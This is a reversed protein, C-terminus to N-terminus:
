GKKEAWKPLDNAAIVIAEQVESDWLPGEAKATVRGLTSAATKWSVGLSGAATAILAAVTTPGTSSYKIVAWSIAGVALLFLAIMWKWNWAFSAVLGLFRKTVRDGADKYDGASLLDSARKEGCLLRRWLEGQSHLRRIVQGRAETSIIGKNDEVWIEWQRLSGSVADASQAPLLRHLDDLWDYANVLRFHEFQETFTGPQKADVLLVTDALMRGLDFSTALHMDKATLVRRLEEHIDLLAKRTSEPEIGEDALGTLSERLQLTFGLAQELQSVDHEIASILSKRREYDSLESAGPLHAPLKASSDVEPPRAPPPDHYVKAM